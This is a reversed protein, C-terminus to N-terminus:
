HIRISEPANQHIRVPEPPNQHFSRPNQPTNLPQLQNRLFSNPIRQQSLKIEDVENESRLPYSNPNSCHDSFAAGGSSAVAVGLLAVAGGLSALADGSLAVVSCWVAGGSSAVAGYRMSLSNASSVETM